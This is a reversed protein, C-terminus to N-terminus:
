LINFAASAVITSNDNPNSSEIDPTDDIGGNTTSGAFNSKSTAKNNVTADVVNAVTSAM